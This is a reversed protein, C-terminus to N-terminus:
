ENPDDVVEMREFAFDVVKSMIDVIKIGSEERMQMIKDYTSKRINLMKYDEKDEADARNLVFKDM